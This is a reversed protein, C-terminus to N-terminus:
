TASPLNNLHTIGFRIPHCVIGSLYQLIDRHLNLANMQRPIMYISRMFTPVISEAFFLM